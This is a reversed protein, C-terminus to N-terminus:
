SHLLEKDPIIWIINECQLLMFAARYLVSGEGGYVVAQTLAIFRDNQNLEDKLRANPRIHIQGHIRHSTTQVTVDIPEKPIVDTFLKGKEDFSSYM